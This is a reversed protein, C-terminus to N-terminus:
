HIGQDSKPGVAVSKPRLYDDYIVYAVFAMTAYGLGPFANRITEDVGVGVKVQNYVWLV